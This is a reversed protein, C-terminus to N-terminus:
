EGSGDDVLGICEIEFHLNEPLCHTLTTRAPYPEKFYERYLSNYLALNSADRVYSRVQVVQDLSSGAAELIGRLNEMTRRFEEEFTGQVIAGAKDVSAQGSVFILNGVQTALSFPLPLGTMGVATPAVPYSIANTKSSM